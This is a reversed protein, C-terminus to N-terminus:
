LSRAAVRLRAHEAYPTDPHSALLAEWANSSSESGIADLALARAAMVVGDLDVDGFAEYHEFTALAGPADARDLQMRGMVAYSVSAERSAPYRRQLRRYGALADGYDSRVRARNARDFLVAASPAHRVVVRVEQPTTRRARPATVESMSTRTAFVTRGARLHAPPEPAFAAAAVTTAVMVFASVAVLWRLSRTGPQIRSTDPENQPPNKPPPLPQREVREVREDGALSDAFYARMRREYRCAGCRACHAELAELGAEDIEDDAELDLLEEPHLVVVAAIM